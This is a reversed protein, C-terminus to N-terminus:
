SSTADGGAMATFCDGVSAGGAGTAGVVTTDVGAGDTGAGGGGELLAAEVDSRAVEGADVAATSLRAGTAGIEGGMVM